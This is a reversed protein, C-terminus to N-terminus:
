FDTKNGMLFIAANACSLFLSSSAQLTPCFHVTSLGFFFGGLCFFFIFTGLLLFNGHFKMEALHLALLVLAMAASIIVSSSVILACLIEKTRVGALISRNWLGESRDIIIISSTLGCSMFFIVRYHFLPSHCKM